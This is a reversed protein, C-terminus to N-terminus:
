PQTGDAKASTILSRILDQLKEPKFPKTMYASAGAELGRKLDDDRGETSVIIVRAPPTPRGDKFRALFELGDMEPMNIDLVVVDPVGKTEIHQLAQHGNKVFSLRCSTMRSLIQTYLVQMVNSDEVVLISSM